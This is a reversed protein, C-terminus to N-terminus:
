ILSQPSDEVNKTLPKAERRGKKIKAGAARLV